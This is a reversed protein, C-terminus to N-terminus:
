ENLGWHNWHPELLIEELVPGIVTARETIGRIMQGSEEIIREVPPVLACEANQKKAIVGNTEDLFESM